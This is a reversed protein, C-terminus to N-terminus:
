APRCNVLVQAAGHHAGGAGTGRNLLKVAITGNDDPFSGAFHWSFQEAPQNVTFSGVMTADTRGRLVAFNTPDGAVDAPDAPKPVYTWVKCSGHKVSGTMFWWMVYTNPDDTDASGSMPVSWFGGTCGYGSFGGGLSVIPTRPTYAAFSGAVSTDPCGRGAIASFVGAGGGGGGGGAGGGGGSGAGGGGGAGGGNGGGPRPGGGPKGGGGGGGAPSGAGPTGDAPGGVTGDALLTPSVNPDPASGTGPLGTSFPPGPQDPAQSAALPPVQNAHAKPLGRYLHITALTLVALVVTTVLLAAAPGGFPGHWYWRRNPRGTARSRRQTSLWSRRRRRKAMPALQVGAGSGAAWSPKVTPWTPAPGRQDTFAPDKDDTM